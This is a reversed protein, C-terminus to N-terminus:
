IKYMKLVIKAASKVCYIKVTKASFDECKRASIKWCNQRVKWLKKVVSKSHKKVCIEEEKQRVIKVCFEEEKSRLILM